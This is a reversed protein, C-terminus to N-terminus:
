NHNLELVDEVLWGFEVHHGVIWTEGDGFGDFCDFGFLSVKEINEEIGLLRARNLSALQCNGYGFLQGTYVPDKIQATHDILNLTDIRLKEKYKKCDSFIVAMIVRTM